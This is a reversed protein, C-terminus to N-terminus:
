AAPGVRRVFRMAATLDALPKIFDWHSAIFSGDALECIKLGLLAANALVGAKIKADAKRETDPDRGIAPDTTAGVATLGVQSRADDSEPTVLGAGEPM